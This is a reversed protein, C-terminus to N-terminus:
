LGGDLFCNLALEVIYLLYVHALLHFVFFEYPKDQMLMIAVIDVSIQLIQCHGYISEDRM